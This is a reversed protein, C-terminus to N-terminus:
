SNRVQLTKGLGMCHALICGGEKKSDLTEFCANWMFQIGTAQHPKLQSVIHSDVSVLAEKTVKNFDLVLSDLKDSEPPKFIENYQM